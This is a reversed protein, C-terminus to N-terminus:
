HDQEAMPRCQLPGEGAALLRSHTVMPEEGEREETHSSGSNPSLSSPNKSVGNQWRRPQSAKQDFNNNRKDWCSTEQNTPRHHLLCLSSPNPMVERGTDRRTGMERGRRNGLSLRDGQEPRGRNMCM